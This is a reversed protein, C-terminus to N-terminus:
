YHASLYARTKKGFIGDGNLSNVTQWEALAEKTIPGFKGDALSNKLAVAKSGKNESILFLQLTTVSGGQSGKRLNSEITKVQQSLTSATPFGTKPLKPIIVPAINNNTINNTIVVMRGGGSSRSGGSPALYTNTITCTAEEGIGLTINSGTQTGGGVCVWDSPTYNTLNTESLAFTDALLGPPPISTSDVPSTGSFDNTGTGDATLIFNTATAPGGGNIIKRLHLIPAVDDNTITCTTNDGKDVEITNGVQAHAGGVCAWDSATYGSAPGGSETLTHTAAGFTAHPYTVDSDVPTTGSLYTWAGMSGSATLTWDTDHATGGNDNTVIKRLHLSPVCTPVTITTNNLTVAAVSALLRGNVTSGGADTIAEQDAMITGVINSSTGLDVASGVQWFVNCAQAGNELIVSSSGASTLSTGAQFIFVANPNNEGNLVLPNAASIGMTSGSNYVGPTLIYGFSAFSDTNSATVPITPGAAAASILATTLATKAGQTVGDGAHNTGTITVSGFGTESTTAYTGVDGTITTAGTNTIGAGALVAFSDATGLDIAGPALAVVIGALGFTFAITLIIISIRNFKKM